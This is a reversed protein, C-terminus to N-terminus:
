VGSLPCVYFITPCQWADWPCAARLLSDNSRVVQEHSAHRKPVISSRPGIVALILFFLVIVLGIQLKRNRFTFYLFENVQKDEIM